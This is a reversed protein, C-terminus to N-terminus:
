ANKAEKHYTITIQKWTFHKDVCVSRVVECDFFQSVNQINIEFIAEDETMRQNMKILGLVNM